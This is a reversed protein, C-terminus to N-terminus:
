QQVQIWVEGSTMPRGHVDEGQASFAHAGPELQWLAKYPQAGFHALPQGDVLLTLKALTLGTGPQASVVIRQAERPLGRDLRYITGADPSSMVLAPELGAPASTVSQGLVKAQEKMPPPQSIGQEHARDQADQPPVTYAQEQVLASPGDAAPHQGTTQGPTVRQHVTCAETPQTGELFLERVRHPCDAGPQLGSLSCVEVEVLGAPRQFERAPAGKLGANVLDHWIPAAGSIGLVEGMPENDANGVWV